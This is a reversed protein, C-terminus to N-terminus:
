RGWQKSPVLVPGLVALAASLPVPVPVVRLAPPTPVPPTPVPPTVLLVPLAVMVLAAIRLAGTQVPSSAAQFTAGM